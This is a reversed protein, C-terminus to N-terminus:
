DWNRSQLAHKCKETIIERSELPLTHYDIESDDSLRFVGIVYVIDARPNEYLIRVTTETGPFNPDPIRATADLDHTM